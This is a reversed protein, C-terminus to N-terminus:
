KVTYTFHLHTVWMCSVFIGGATYLLMHVDYLEYMLHYQYFNYIAIAM